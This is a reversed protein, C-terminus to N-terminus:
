RPLLAVCACVCRCVCVCVCGSIPGIVIYVAGCSALSCYLLTNKIMTIAIVLRLTLNLTLTATDIHSPLSYIAAKYCQLEEGLRLKNFTGFDALTRKEQQM